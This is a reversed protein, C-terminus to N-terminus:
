SGLAGYAGGGPPNAGQNAPRDFATRSRNVAYTLQGDLRNTLFADLALVSVLGIVASVAALLAVIAVVLRVRLTRM